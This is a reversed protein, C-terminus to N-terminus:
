VWQQISYFVYGIASREARTVLGGPGNGDIGVFTNTAADYSEVIAHHQWPADKYAIDGPQPNDTLPLHYLFGKGVEWCVDLAVKATHLVFLAFIGCWEGTYSDPLCASRYFARDEGSGVWVGAIRVIRERSTERVLSFVVGVTAAIGIGWLLTSSRM